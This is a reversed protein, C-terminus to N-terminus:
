NTLHRKEFAAGKMWEGLKQFMDNKEDSITRIRM